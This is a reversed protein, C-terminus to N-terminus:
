FIITQFLAVAGAFLIFGITILIWNEDYDFLYLVFNILMHFLMDILTVFVFLTAAVYNIIKECLIDFKNNM